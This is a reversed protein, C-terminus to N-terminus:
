SNLEGTSRFGTMGHPLRPLTAPGNEHARLDYRKTRTNRLWSSLVTATWVTEATDFDGGSYRDFLARLKTLNAYPALESMDGSLEHAVFPGSESNFARNFKRGLHIWRNRRFRVDDPLFGATGQRVIWKSWGDRVKQDWPLALCFEVVRKDLFPHRAEIGQSAAVRHYRELAAGLQPHGIERARRERASLKPYLDRLAFLKRLRGPIDTRAACERSVFSDVIATRVDRRRRVPHWAARVFQPALARCTNAALLRTASSWPAYTGRYFRAFGRAERFATGWSGARLFGALIDPEHTAVIDGDVGDLVAGFGRRSAASYSLLPIMMADDFPEEMSAFFTEIEDRYGGVEGPRLM